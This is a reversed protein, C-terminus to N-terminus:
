ETPLTQAYASLDGIQGVDLTNAQPGMISAPQGYSVKHQFEAPNDNSLFGPFADFDPDGGPPVNRGDAGHCGACATNYLGEGDGANGTFLNDGDLIDVTDLLGTMVFEALDVRRNATECNYVWSQPKKLCKGLDRQTLGAEERM